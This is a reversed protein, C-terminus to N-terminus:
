RILTVHGFFTKQRFDQLSKVTLVYAYVGQQCEEGDKTGDWGINMSKTRFIQEGWRNFVKLEYSGPDYGEGKANFLENENNGNPTFTNPVYLNYVPTVFVTYFAEDTCGFETTVIQQVQYHGTDPYTHIPNQETSTTGDFFDYYWQSALSSQDIFVINPNLIDTVAPSGVFSATPEPHVVVFDPFVATNLCNDASTVTLTISYTGPNEYVHTTSGVPATITQNSGSTPDGFNWEWSIGSVNSTTGIFDARFDECGDALPTTLSIIPLPNVNILVNDSDAPSNCGDTVVIEYITASDPNITLPSQVGGGGIMTFNYNGDGGTASFALATTEGECIPNPGAVTLSLNLPDAVAITVSSPNSNCNSGDTATVSYTTTTVPSVNPNNVITSTISPDAPNSTWFFTYPGGDGGSGTAQLATTNGLCITQNNSVTVNVAPPEILTFSQNFSCIGTADTVTVTYIGACINSADEANGAGNDWSYTYAGTGGTATINILGDCVANCSVDTIIGTVNIGQPPESITIPLTFPCGNNDSVIVGYSGACLGIPDEVTTNGPAWIYSYPATGGTATINVSGDCYGFCTADVHTETVNVAAIPETLSVSITATCGGADSVNCTYLGAALSNIDQTASGDSWSITLPSQGGVVTLDISGTSQGFCLIDQHTESLTVGNIAITMTATTACLGATPTFTYTTTALNNLAPSWNGGIGENSNLSLPAIPDNVCYPGLQSFTPTIIPDITITLNASTACQGADPTFTYSTTASNNLSPSWIGTFGNNSTAPLAPISSNACYPGVATFTPTTLATIAITQTAQSACQGVAPTFTYTQNGLAATSITAPSWAGNIGELSSSPLVGATAGQCYPGLLAFNPSVLGSVTVVATNQCGTNDTFTITTTGQAVGTVIGTTSVTAVATNSSSWPNTTAPTSTSTLATTQGPCTTFTGNITPQPSSPIVISNITAPPCTGDSITVSYTGACQNSLSPSSGGGPSWAFTYTGDGGTLNTLQIGGNCNNCTESSIVPTATIPGFLNVYQTFTSPCAGSITGTIAYTGPTTYTQSPPTTGTYTNGNGFTWVPSGTSTNNVSVTTSAGCVTTSPNLTFAVNPAIQATGNGWTFVFGTGDGSWNNILISYTQGAIVNVGANFEGGGAANMGFNSGVELDFNYNCSVETGPCSSTSNYMAWDYETSNSTPNGTWRVTGSTLATFTIWVDQGPFDFFCSPLAGSGTFSLMSPINVPTNSCIPIANSCNDGAAASTPTQSTICLQFSGDIGTTSAVGVLVTTGVPYSRVITVPATGASNNCFDISNDACGTVDVVLAADQLTTPTLVITNQTGTVVYQFWVFNASVNTNCTNTTNDATGGLSTYTNCSNGSAPITIPTATTCGDSQGYISFSFWVFIISLTIFSKM